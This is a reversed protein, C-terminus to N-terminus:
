VFFIELTNESVECISKEDSPKATPQSVCFRFITKRLRKVNTPQGTSTNLIKKSQSSQPQPVPLHVQYHLDSVHGVM